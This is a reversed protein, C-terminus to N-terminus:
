HMDRVRRRAQTASAPVVARAPAAAGTAGACSLTGPVIEVRVWAEVPATDVTCCVILGGGAGVGLWTTPGTVLVTVCVRPLTPPLEGADFTSGRGPPPELPEELGAGFEDDCGV